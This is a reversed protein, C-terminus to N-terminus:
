IKGLSRSKPQIQQPKITNDIEELDLYNLSCRNKM